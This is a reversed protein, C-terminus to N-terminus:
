RRMGWGVWPGTTKLKKLGEDFPEGVIRDMFFALYRGFPEDKLDGVLRLTVKIGGDGRELTFSGESEQEDFVLKYSLSRGPECHTIELYGEGNEPHKWRCQAGVGRDPGLYELEIKPFNETTWPSWKPWNKLDDLYPFIQEPEGTIVVSREVEYRSSLLLGGVLVLAGVALVVALFRRIM